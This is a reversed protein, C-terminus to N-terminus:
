IIENLLHNLLSAPQEHFHQKRKGDKHFHAGQQWGTAVVDVNIVIFHVYCTSNITKKERAM